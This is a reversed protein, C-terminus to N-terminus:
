DNIVFVEWLKCFLYIIEDLHFLIRVLAIVTTFVIVGFNKLLNFNRYPFLIFCNFERFSIKIEM